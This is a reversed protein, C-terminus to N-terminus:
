FPRVQFTFYHNINTYINYMLLLEFIIYLLFLEGNIDM